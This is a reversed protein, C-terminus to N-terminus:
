KSLRKNLRLDFFVGFSRTVARQAPLEGCCINGNSSTMMICVTLYYNNANLVLAFLIPSLEEGLRVGIKRDFNDSIDYECM